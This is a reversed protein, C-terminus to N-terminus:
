FTLNVQYTGPEWNSWEKVWALYITAVNTIVPESTDNFWMQCHTDIKWPEFRNIMTLIRVTPGLPNLERKDLYAAYLHFSGNSSEMVQWFNNFNLDYIEPFPACTDNMKMNKHRNQKWFQLSLNPMQPELLDIIDDERLKLEDLAPVKLSILIDTSSNVKNISRMFLFFTMFLLLILPFLKM